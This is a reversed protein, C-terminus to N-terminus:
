RIEKIEKGWWRILDETYEPDIEVKRKKDESDVYTVRSKVVGAYEWTNISLIEKICNRNLVEPTSYCKVIFWDENEFPIDSVGLRAMEQDFDINLKKRNASDENTIPM